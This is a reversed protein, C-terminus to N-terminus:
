KGRKLENQFRKAEKKIDISYQYILPYVPKGDNM